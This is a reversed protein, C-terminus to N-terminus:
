PEPGAVSAAAMLDSDHLHQVIDNVTWAKFLTPRQWDTEKLTALLAHLENAEARFDEAQPLM